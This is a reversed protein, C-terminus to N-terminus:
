YLFSCNPRNPKTFNLILKKFRDFYIKFKAQIRQDFDKPDIGIEQAYEHLMLEIASHLLIPKAEEEKEVAIMKEITKESTIQAWLNPAIFFILLLFKSV